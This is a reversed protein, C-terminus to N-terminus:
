FFVRSFHPLSVEGDSSAEAFFVLEQLVSPMDAINMGRERSGLCM